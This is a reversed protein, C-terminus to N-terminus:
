GVEMAGFQESIGLTVMNELSTSKPISFLWMSAAQKTFGGQSFINVCHGLARVLCLKAEILLPSTQGKQM